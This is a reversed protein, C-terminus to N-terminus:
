SLFGFLRQRARHFMPLEYQGCVIERGSRTDINFQLPGASTRTMPPANVKPLSVDQKSCWYPHPQCADM